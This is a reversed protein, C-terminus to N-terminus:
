GTEHASWTPLPTSGLSRGRASRARDRRRGGPSSPRKSSSGLRWQPWESKGLPDRWDFVNPATKRVSDRYDKLQHRLFLNEAERRCRSKFLNAVVTGLLRLIALM